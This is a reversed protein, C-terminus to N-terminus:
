GVGRRQFDLPGAIVDIIEILPDVGEEALLRKLKEEAVLRLSPPGHETDFCLLGNGILKPEDDSIGDVIQPGREVQRNVCQRAGPCVGGLEVFDLKGKRRLGFSNIRGDLISLYPRGSFLDNFRYMRELWVLCPVCFEPPETVEIISVLMSQKEQGSFCGAEGSVIETFDCSTRGAPGPRDHKVRFLAVEESHCIDSVCSSRSVLPAPHTIKVLYCIDLRGERYAETLSLGEVTLGHNLDEEPNCDHHLVRDGIQDVRIEVGGVCEIGLDGAQRL